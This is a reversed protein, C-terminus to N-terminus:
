RNLTWVVYNLYTAFFVWGAYPWLLLSALRSVPRTYFILSLVSLGLIFSDIVGAAINHSYFFLYSWSVNIIANVIFLIALTKLSKKASSETWIMLASLTTLIFITTWVFGIVSGSPTWSPLNLTQYWAMGASTLISGIFATAITVLLIGIYSTKM